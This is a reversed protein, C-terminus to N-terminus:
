ILEEKKKISKSKANKTVKFTLPLQSATNKETKTECSPTVAFDKEVLESSSSSNNEPETNQSDKGSSETKSEAQSM